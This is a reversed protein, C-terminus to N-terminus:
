TTKRFMVYKKPVLGPLSWPIRKKVNTEKDLGEGLVGMEQVCEM